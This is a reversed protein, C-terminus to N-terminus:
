AGQQTNVNLLGLVNAQISNQWKTANLVIKDHDRITYDNDGTVPDDVTYVLVGGQEQEDGWAVISASDVTFPTARATSINSLSPFTLNIIANQVNEEPNTNKPVAALAKVINSGFLDFLLESCQKWQVSVQGIEIESLGISVIKFYDDIDYESHTIRWIDNVYASILGIKCISSITTIPFSERKAIELIRTTVIEPFVFGQLDYDGSRITGTAAINSEDRYFAELSTFSDAFSTFKARFENTTNDITQYSPTFSPFDDRSLRPVGNEDKVVNGPLTIGGMRGQTYLRAPDNTTLYYKGESDLTLICDTWEQIKKIMERASSQQQFSCNVGYPKQPNNYYYELVRWFSAVNVHQNPTLNPDIVGTTTNIDITSDLGLGYFRNTLLDFIASAPNAGASRTQPLIMTAATAVLPDLTELEDPEGYYLPDGDVTDTIRWPRNWGFLPNTAVDRLYYDRGIEFTFVQGTQYPLRWYDILRLPQPPALFQFATGPPLNAFSQNSPRIYIDGGQEINNFLGSGFPGIFNVVTSLFSGVVAKTWPIADGHISIGTALNRTVEYRVKNVTTRKDNSWPVPHKDNFNYHAIGHLPSLFSQAVREASVASKQYIVPTSDNFVYPNGSNFNADLWTSGNSLFRLSSDILINHLTVDGFCIAQWLSANDIAYQVGDLVGYVVDQSSTLVKAIDDIITGEVIANGYVIPVSKVDSYFRLGPPAAVGLTPNVTTGSILPSFM